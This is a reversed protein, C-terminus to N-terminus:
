DCVEELREVIGACEGLAQRGGGAEDRVSEECGLFDILDDDGARFDVSGSPV